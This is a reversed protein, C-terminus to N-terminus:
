VFRSVVEIHVVVVGVYKVSHPLLVRGDESQVVVAVAGPNGSDRETLGIRGRRGGAM